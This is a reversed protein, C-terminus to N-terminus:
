WLPAAISESEHGAGGGRRASQAMDTCQSHITVKQEQIDDHLICPFDVYLKTTVFIEGRPIGSQRIAEGVEDENGYAWATDIHRYGCRLASLVADRVAGRPTEKGGQFTGFGVAPLDVGNLDFKTPLSKM